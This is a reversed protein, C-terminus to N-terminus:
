KILEEGRAVSHIYIYVYMYICPDVFVHTKVQDAAEKMLDEGLAQCLFQVVRLHGNMAAMSLCGCNDQLHDFYTYLKFGMCIDCIHMYQM